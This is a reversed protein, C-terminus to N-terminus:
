SQMGRLQSSNKRAIPEVVQTTARADARQRGAVAAAVVVWAANTTVDERAAKQVSRARLPWCAVKEEDREGEGCGREEAATAEAEASAGAVVDAEAAEPGAEASRAAARRRRSAARGGLATERARNAVAGM